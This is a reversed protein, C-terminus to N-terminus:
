WIGQRARHATGLRRRQGCEAHDLFQRLGVSRNAPAGHDRGRQRHTDAAQRHLDPAFQGAGRRVIAAGPRSPRAPSGPLHRVAIADLSAPIEGAADLIGPPQVAGADHHVAIGRAPGRGARRDQSRQPHGPLRHGDHIGPRHHSHAAGAALIERHVIYEHRRPSAAQRVVHRALGAGQVVMPGPVHM